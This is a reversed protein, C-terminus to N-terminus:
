ADSCTEVRGARHHLLELEHDALAELERREQRNTAELAAKRLRYVDAEVIWDFM